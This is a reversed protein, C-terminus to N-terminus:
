KRQALERAHHMSALKAHAKAQNLAAMCLLFHQQALPALESGDFDLMLRVHAADVIQHLEDVRLDQPETAM